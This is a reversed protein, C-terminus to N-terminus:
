ALCGRTCGSNVAVSDDSPRSIRSTFPLFQGGGTWCLGGPTAPCLGAAGSLLRGKEAARGEVFRVSARETADLSHLATLRPAYQEGRVHEGTRHFSVRRVPRDRNGRDPALAAQSDGIAIPLYDGEAVFGCRLTTAGGRKAAVAESM